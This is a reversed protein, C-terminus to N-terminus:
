KNKVKGGIPFIYCDFELGPWEGLQFSGTLLSPPGWPWDSVKPTSFNAREQRSNTPHSLCM